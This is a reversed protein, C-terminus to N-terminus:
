RQRTQPRQDDSSQELYPSTSRDLAELSAKVCDRLGDKWLADLFAPLAKEVPQNRNKQLGAVSRKFQMAADGPLLTAIAQVDGDDAERLFQAVRVALQGMPCQQNLFVSYEKHLDTLSLRELGRSAMRQAMSPDLYM